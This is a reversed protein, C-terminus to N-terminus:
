AKIYGELQIENFINRINNIYINETYNQSVINRNHISIEKNWFLKNYLDELNQQQDETVVIGNVGDKVIDVIGAHDTTVIICGNGMAELISIPQGENPYRSLLIFIDSKKLLEKKKEGEVVGHYTVFDGLNNTQIFNFFDKRERESFFKGAFNFYFNKDLGSNVREMEIKALELVEKYGKTKIFNSLYLVDKIEKTHLNSLKDNFEEDSILFENDVCNPIIFIKKDEVINTFNSNLSKSLVIAGSIKSVIRYNLASQIKNLKKDVLTRYYGGHLHILSRKNKLNLLKLIILDRINGGKTQSITFYFLDAKSKYIKFLNRFFKKNETLNVKEFNFETSLPSNILTDVAKSLGHLPPPFQAILCIKKKM